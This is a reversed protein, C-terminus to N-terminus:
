IPLRVTFTSGQGPASKVEIDGNHALVIHKVISLGLGTGGAERSRSKDVVYFREFIRPIDEAPMGIGTDRVTIVAHAANTHIDVEIGGRETYKVANDILNIFLQELKYRDGTVTIDDVSTTLTLGKEAIRKEFIKEIGQMVDTFRVPLREIRVRDQELESLLLLDNVINIMRDTNRVIIDAYRAHEGTSEDGLTEAFGRIATLPTRLEHSVNTVFDKKLRDMTRMATIDMMVVIIVGRSLLMQAAVLYVKGSQEIERRTSERRDKVSSIFALLEGEDVCEWYPQGITITRDLMRKFKDNTILVAGNQGDIVCLGEGMAELVAALEEKERSVEDFLHAIDRAMDNLRLALERLERPNRVDSRVNFDGAAIADAMRVLEDVPRSISRAIIVAIILSIIVAALALNLITFSLQQTIARTSELSASTRVCGIVGAANTIPVAVYFMTIRRTASYRQAVGRGGELAAIVEPRTAHNEMASSDADSDALVSGNSAIVTLRRGTERHMDMVQTRIGKMDGSSIREALEPRMGAAIDGLHDIILNKSHTEITVFTILLIALAFVGITLVFGTFLRFFLAPFKLRSKM